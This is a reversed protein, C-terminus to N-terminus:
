APQVAVAEWRGPLGPGVDVVVVTGESITRSGGAIATCHFLLSRGDDTTITGIGRPDDFATVTGTVADPGSM